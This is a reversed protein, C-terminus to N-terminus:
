TLGRVMFRTKKMHCIQKVSLHVIMRETRGNLESITGNLIQLWVLFFIRTSRFIAIPRPEHVVGWFLLGLFVTLVLGQYPTATILYVAHLSSNTRVQNRLYWKAKKGKHSLKAIFSVEDCLGQKVTKDVPEEIWEFKEQLWKTVLWNM